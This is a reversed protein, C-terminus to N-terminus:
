ERCVGDEVHKVEIEFPVNLILFPLTGLLPCQQDFVYLGYVLLLDGRFVIAILTLFLPVWIHFRFWCMHLELIRKLLAKQYFILRKKLLGLLLIIFSGQLRPTIIRGHSPVAAVGLKNFLYVLLEHGLLALSLLGAQSPYGGSEIVTLGFDRLDIFVGEPEGLTDEDRATVTLLFPLYKSIVPLSHEPDILVV